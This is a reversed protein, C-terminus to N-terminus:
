DNAFIETSYGLSFECYDFRRGLDFTTSDFSSKRGAEIDTTSVYTYANGIFTGDDKYFDIMVKVFGVDVEGQNEVIGFYKGQHWEFLDQYEYTCTKQTLELKPEPDEKFVPAPEAIPETAQAVSYGELAIEPETYETSVCGSIFVLLLFIVLANLKNM